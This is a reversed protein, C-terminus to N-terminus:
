GGNQYVLGWSAGWSGRHISYLRFGVTHRSVLKTLIYIEGGARLVFAGVPSEAANALPQGRQFARCNLQGYGSMGGGAPILFISPNFANGQAQRREVAAFILRPGGPRLRLSFGGARFDAVNARRRCAFRAGDLAHTIVRAQEAADLRRAEMWPAAAIANSAIWPGGERLPGGGRTPGGGRFDVRVQPESVAASASRLVTAIGVQRGNRFVLYRRGPRCFRRAFDARHAGVAFAGIGARDFGLRRVSTGEALAVPRLVGEWRGAVSQVADLEFIPHAANAMGPGAQAAGILSM